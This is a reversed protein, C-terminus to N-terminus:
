DGIWSGRRTGWGVFGSRSGGLGGDWAGAADKGGKGFLISVASALRGRVSSGTEM